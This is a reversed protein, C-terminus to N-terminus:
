KLQVHQTATLTEMTLRKLAWMDDCMLTEM